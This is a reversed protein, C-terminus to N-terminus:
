SGSGASARSVSRSFTKNLHSLSEQTLGLPNSGSLPTLARSRQSGSQPRCIRFARIHQFWFRSSSPQGRAVNLEVQSLLFGEKRLQPMARSRSTCWHALAHVFTPVKLNEITRARNSTPEKPLSSDALLIRTQRRTLRLSCAERAHISETKQQSCLRFHQFSKPPHM